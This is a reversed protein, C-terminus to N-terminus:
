NSFMIIDVEKTSRQRVRSLQYGTLGAMQSSFLYM